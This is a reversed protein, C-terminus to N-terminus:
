ALAKEPAANLIRKLREEGRIASFLPSYMLELKPLLHAALSKEIARYFLEKEGLAYYVFGAQFITVSKDSMEELANALDRARKTNGELACLFGEYMITWPDDPRVIGAKDIAERAHALDNIGLYYEARHTNTRYPLMAETKNWHELAQTIRGSYAYAHGLFAIVNRDLPDTQHAMELLRVMEEVDGSGGSLQALVRYPAALSPNLRVAEMAEREANVHEDEALMILSLLSHAEGLEPSLELARRLLQKTERMSDEYPAFGEIGLWEVVDAKGVMARAFNPDRSLAIDFLDKAQRITRESGRENALQRGHLFFTYAQLDKTDQNATMEYFSPRQGIGRSSLNEIVKAAVNTAIDTQIAFIDDLQKDYASSFIHEESNADILQVTVRIKSGAKRISGEIVSGVGLETAIDSAKKETNKFHTITTRAIIKLTKAQALKDILEETMGDAFYSDSPDPSMNVFPLVAIRQPPLLQGNRKTSEQSISQKSSWPMVIQYLTLKGEVNKLMRPGLEEIPFDVITKVQDYVSQTICVGEPEALPEVRSAINVANGLVDHGSHIIDGLHIGIRIVIRRDGEHLNNPAHIANQIEVACNTADLANTFEVLFADGMTKIEKGHYRPFIQRLITRHEELLQLALSESRQSIATYGVLDTFMIAGLRRETELM